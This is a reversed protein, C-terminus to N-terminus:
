SPSSPQKEDINLVLPSLKNNASLLLFKRHKLKWYGGREFWSKEFCSEQGGTVLPMSMFVFIPRFPLWLGLAQRNRSANASRGADLLSHTGFRTSNVDVSLRPCDFTLASQQTYVEELYATRWWLRYTQSASRSTPQLFKMPVTPGWSQFSIESAVLGWSVSESKICLKETGYCSLISEKSFSPHSKVKGM